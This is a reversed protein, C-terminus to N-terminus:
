VFGCTRLLLETRLLLQKFFCCLNETQLLLRASCFSLVPIHIRNRYQGSAGVHGVSKGEWLHSREIGLDEIRPIMNRTVLRRCLNAGRLLRTRTRVTDEIEGYGGFKWWIEWLYRARVPVPIGLLFHRYVSGVRLQNKKTVGLTRLVNCGPLHMEECQM